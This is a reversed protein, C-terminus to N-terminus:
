SITAGSPTILKGDNRFVWNHGNVQIVINIAGVGTRFVTQSSEVDVAVAGQFQVATLSGAGNSSIGGSDFSVPGNVTLGGSMVDGSKSVKGNVSSLLSALTAAPASYWHTGGTILKIQSVIFSLLSAVSGSAAPTANESPTQSGSIATDNTAIGADMATLNGATATGGTSFPGQQVYTM